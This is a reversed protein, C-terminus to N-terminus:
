STEEDWWYFIAVSGRWETSWWRVEKCYRSKLVGLYAMPYGHGPPTYNGCVRVRRGLVPMCHDVDRWPM